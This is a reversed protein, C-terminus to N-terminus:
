EESLLADMLQQETLKHWMSRLHRLLDKSIDSRRAVPRGIDKAKPSHPYNDGGLDDLYEYKRLLPHKWIQSMTIRKDPKIELMKKILSKAEDSFGPAMEYQGKKIKCLLPGIWAQSTDEIDFPLRGALSAFLIVGLSWIDVKSGQYLSGRILEPAAYHPSGCSTKLRHDPSQQLAAMGFDAVKIDGSSNLLINEPKLDRHCIKFSHCYGVASLIQRFCKMAEVEPLRGRSAIHTFLEGKDVYELVLYRCVILQHHLCTELSM